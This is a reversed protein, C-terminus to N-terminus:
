ELPLTINRYIFTNPEAQISHVFEIFEIKNNILRIEENNLEFNIEHLAVGGCIVNLYYSSDSKYLIFSWQEEIIKHLELNM